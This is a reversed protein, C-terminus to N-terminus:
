RLVQKVGCNACVYCPGEKRLAFHQCVAERALKEKAQADREENVKTRQAEICAQSCRYKVSSDEYETSVATGAQALTWENGYVDTIDALQIPTGCVECEEGYARYNPERRKDTM